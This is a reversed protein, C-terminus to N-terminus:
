VESSSKLDGVCPLFTECPLSRGNLERQPQRNLPLCCRGSVLMHFELVYAPLRRAANTGSEASSHGAWMVNIARLLTSSIAVPEPLWPLM